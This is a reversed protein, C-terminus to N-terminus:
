RPERVPLRDATRVERDGWMHRADEDDVLEPTFFRRIVDGLRDVLDPARSTDDGNPNWERM